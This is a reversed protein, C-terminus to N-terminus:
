YGQAARRGDEGQEQADPDRYQARQASPDAAAREVMASRALWKRLLADIQQAASHWHRSAVRRSLAESQQSLLQVLEHGVNGSPVTVPLM